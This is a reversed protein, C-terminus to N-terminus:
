REGHGDDGATVLIGPTGCEAGIPTKVPLILERMGM